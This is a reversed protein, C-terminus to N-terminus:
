SSIRRKFHLHNKIVARLSAGRDGRTSRGALMLSHLQAITIRLLPTALSHRLGNRVDVIRDGHLQHTLRSGVLALDVVQQESEIAGLVFRVETCVGDETDRHGHCVGGGFGEAHGEIAVDASEAGGRQRDRHHIDEVAALVGVVRDVELLEHDSRNGGISKRVGEPDAGLDEM